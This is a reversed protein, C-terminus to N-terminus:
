DNSKNKNNYVQHIKLKSIKTDKKDVKKKSHYYINNLHPKNGTRM